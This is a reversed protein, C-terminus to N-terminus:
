LQYEELTSPDGVILHKLDQENTLMLTSVLAPDTDEIPPPRRFGESRLWSNFHEEAKKRYVNLQSELDSDTM